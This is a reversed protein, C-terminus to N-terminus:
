FVALVFEGKEPIRLLNDENISSLDLILIEEYIKTLERGILLKKGKLRESLFKITKRVRKPSEFFFVPYKVGALERALTERGKKKPFFGIFRFDSCSFPAVSILALLPSPGPIPMIRVGNKEVLDNLKGGPDCLNPTGGDSLYAVERGSKLEDLLFALKKDSSHQHLSVLRKNINYKKLLKITQRTDECAIFDVKKLTELARLTIDGLNGIPSGIIYLM